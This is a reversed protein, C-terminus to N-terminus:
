FLDGPSIIIARFVVRPELMKIRFTQSFFPPGYVTHQPPELRQFEDKIKRGGKRRKDIERKQNPIFSGTM